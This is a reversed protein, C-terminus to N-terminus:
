WVSVVLGQMDIDYSRLIPSVMYLYPHHPLSDTAPVLQKFSIIFNSLDDGSLALSLWQDCVCLAPSLPVLFLPLLLMSCAFSDIKLPSVTATPPVVLTLPGGLPHEHLLLCYSSAKVPLTPHLHHHRPMDRSRRECSPQM